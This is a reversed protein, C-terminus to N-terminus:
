GEWHNVWHRPRDGSFVRAIEEAAKRQLDGIANESYWATHDTVIVNSLGFLPSAIDPPETEFVDLGAGFIRRERLADVLAAEDILGGRSTNVLVANPKMLALTERNVVHRTQPTMPAHLSIADAERFLREQSVLQTGDPPEKLFPDCILVRAFGLAAAKRCFAQGILGYGLLGLTGGSIRFMPEARSVNWTGKRTAADRTPIRRIVALMLAMAHDSVEEFGYDPVNAVYIRREAASVRDINDVGVGYRVIVRCTPMAAIAEATIPSERVLVADAGEVAAVVKAADGHCPRAELRVGFPDLISREIDYSGYGEDLVVVLPRVDAKDAVTMQVATM